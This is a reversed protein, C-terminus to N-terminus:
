TLLALVAEEYTTLEAAAMVANAITLMSQLM